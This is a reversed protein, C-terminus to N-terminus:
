LNDLIRDDIEKLSSVVHKVKMRSMEEKQFEGKLAFPFGIFAVFNELAEKAVISQSDIFLVESFDLHLIEKTIASVGPRISNTRIYFPESFFHQFSSANRYFYDEPAGGYAIIKWGRKKLRSLFDLLGTNPVISNKAEYDIRKKYYYDLLESRNFKLGYRKILYSTIEDPSRAFVYDELESDYEGGWESVMEHLIKSFINELIVGDLHLFVHTIQRSM